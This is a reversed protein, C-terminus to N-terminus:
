TERPCLTPAVSAWSRLVETTNPMLMMTFGLPYPGPGQPPIPRTSLWEDMGGCGTRRCLGDDARGGRANQDV